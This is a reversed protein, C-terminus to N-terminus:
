LNEQYSHPSLKNPTLLNIQLLRAAMNLSLYRNMLLIPCALTLGIKNAAVAEWLRTIAAMVAKNRVSFVRATTYIHNYHNCHTILIALM